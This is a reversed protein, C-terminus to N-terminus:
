NATCVRDRGSEKARYLAHDARALLADVDGDSDSLSAIGISVTPVIEGEWQGTLQMERTSTCLRDAVQFAAESSTAPLIMAFEEGGLRGILDSERTIVLCQRAVAQIVKDGAERGFVDNIRKFGDIDLIMLSLAQPYRQVRLFEERAKQFFHSRNSVGTLADTTAQRHVEEELLRLETIDTSFGILVDPHGSRELLLKTTWYRRVVGSADAFTEEISHKTGTEFVKRDLEWLHDAVAKPLLEEDHHGVIEAAPRGLAAAAQQNIYIYNRDRGKMYVHAGVNNLVTDLLHRQAELELELQKRETIDTSIGCMGVIQGHPDLVPVKVVWNFRREGTTKVVSLEECRVTEGRDLVKRDNLRLENSRELDFFSSDDKGIIEELPLGFLECVAKNAFTYRGLTDKTYIFTCLQDLIASRSGETTLAEFRKSQGPM